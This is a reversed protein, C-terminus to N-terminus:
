NHGSINILLQKFPVDDDPLELRHTGGEVPGPDASAVLTWAGAVHRTVVLYNGGWIGYGITKSHL